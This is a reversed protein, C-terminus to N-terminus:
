VSGYDGEKEMEKRCPPIWRVRTDGDGNRRWVIWAYPMQSAAAPDVRERVLPVREVFPCFVDPSAVSFLNEWRRRGELWSARVFLAVGERALSLARHAFAEARNFPPNTIIWDVEVGYDAPTPGSLFDIVPFGAGYDYADSAIVTGFYEALPRAMYGRNAAPEWVTMGACGPMLVHEVLARTAWPPTPYDDPGDKDSQRNQFGKMRAM